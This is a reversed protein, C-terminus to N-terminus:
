SSRGPTSPAQGRARDLGQARDLRGLDPRLHHFLAALVFDLHGTPHVAGPKGSAGVRSLISRHALWRRVPKRGLNPGARDPHNEIM